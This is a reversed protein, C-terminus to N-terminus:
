VTIVQEETDCILCTYEVPKYKCVNGGSEDASNNNENQEEMCGPCYVANGIIFEAAHIKEDYITKDAESVPVVPEYNFLNMTTLIGLSIVVCIFVALAIALFYPKRRSRRKYVRQPEAPTYSPPYSVEVNNFGDHIGTPRKCHVKVKYANM